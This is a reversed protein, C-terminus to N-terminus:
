PGVTDPRTSTHSIQVDFPLPDVLGIRSYDVISGPTEYAYLVAVGGVEFTELQLPLEPNRDKPFLRKRGMM